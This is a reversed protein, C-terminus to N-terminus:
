LQFCYIRNINGCAEITSNSWRNDTFEAEGVRGSGMGTWLNCDPGSYTGDPLTATWVRDEETPAAKGKEDLAMSKSIKGSLLETRSAIAMVGDVRYWPGSSTVRDKAETGPVSLWARYTGPLNQAAALDNCTKDAGALGNLAATIVASSVFAHLPGADGGEGDGADAADEDIISEGADRAADDTPPVVRDPLPLDDGTGDDLNPEACAAFFGASLALACAAGFVFTFRLRM